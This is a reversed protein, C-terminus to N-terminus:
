EEDRGMLVEIARLDTITVGHPTSYMMFASLDPILNQHNWSLAGVYSKAEEKTRPFVKEDDLATIADAMYASLNHHAMRIGSLASPAVRVRVFDGDPSALAAYDRSRLSQDVKLLASASSLPLKALNDLAVRLVTPRYM